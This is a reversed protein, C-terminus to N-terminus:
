DTTPDSEDEEKIKQQIFDEDEAIRSEAIEDKIKELAVDDFMPRFWAKPCNKDIWKLIEPKTMSLILGYITDPYEQAPRDWTFNYNPTLKAVYPIVVEDVVQKAQSYFMGNDVLM